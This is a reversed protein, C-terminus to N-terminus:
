QVLLVSSFFIKLKGVSVKERLPPLTFYFLFKDESVSCDPNAVKVKQLLLKHVLGTIM